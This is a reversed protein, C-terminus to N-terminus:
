TTTTPMRGAHRQMIEELVDPSTLPLGFNDIQYDSMMMSFADLIHKTHHQPLSRFLNDAVESVFNHHGIGYSNIWAIVISLAYHEIAEATRIQYLKKTLLDYDEANLRIVELVRLNYRVKNYVLSEIDKQMTSLDTQHNWRKDM